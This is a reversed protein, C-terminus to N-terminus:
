IYRNYYNTYIAEEYKTDVKVFWAVILDCDNKQEYGLKELENIVAREIRQKNIPNAGLPFNHNHDIINFSTYRSFNINSEKDSIVKYSSKCQIM